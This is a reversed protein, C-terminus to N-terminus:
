RNMYVTDPDPQEIEGAQGITDNLAQVDTVLRDLEDDVEDGQIPSDSPAVPRSSTEKGRSNHATPGEAFVLGFLVVLGLSLNM